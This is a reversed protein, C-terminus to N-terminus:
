KEKVNLLTTIIYAIVNLRFNNYAILKIQHPSVDFVALASLATYKKIVRAISM